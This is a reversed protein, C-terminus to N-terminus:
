SWVQSPDHDPQDTVEDLLQAATHTNASTCAALMAEAAHYDSFDPPVVLFRVRQDHSTLVVIMHTDDHPFSGAKLYGDGVPIRRVPADWDPPSVLARRPRGLHPPFHDLLDSLETVMDRSQPWWAGDLVARGPEDDGWQLRIPDRTASSPPPQITHPAAM